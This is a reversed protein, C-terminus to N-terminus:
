SARAPTTRCATSRATSCARRPSARSGPARTRSRRSRRADPRRVRRGGHVEDDRHEGDRHRRTGHEGRADRRVEAPPRPWNQYQVTVNWGPHDNKFQQNAAAVGGALRVARRGPALRHPQERGPSPRRRCSSRRGDNGCRRARGRRARGLHHTREHDGGSRDQVAREVGTFTALRPKRGVWMPSSWNAM